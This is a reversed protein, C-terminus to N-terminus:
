LEMQGIFGTKHQNENM